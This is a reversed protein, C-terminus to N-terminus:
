QNETNNCVGIIQMFILCPYMLQYLCLNRAEITTKPSLDIHSGLAGEVGLQKGEIDDDRHGHRVISGLGLDLGCLTVDCGGSPQENAGHSFSPRSALM